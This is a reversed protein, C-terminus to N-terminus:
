GMEKITIPRGERASRQAARTFQFVERGEKGSLPAQRGELISDVFDIMGARFSVAWDWDIEERGIETFKGDSYYVLPPRNLFKGTCRNVWIFGTTGGIEFWEDEAWYDSPIVLDDSSIANWSGQRKGDSHLWSIIAPSDRVWGKENVEERIFAFVQEVPGFMFLALAFLHYGHDFVVRGGGSQADDFRWSLTSASLKWGHKLSGQASSMRISIGEGIEGSDLLEKAKALPPYYRFNEFVRFSGPAGAAAEIMGDCEQATIAMPKQVSVHKGAELADISMHRHLDHPTIIDVADVDPDDLLARYDTYSKSAGWEAARSDAIGEASDAVAIIEAAPHAIYGAAHLGSISGAGIIGVRVRDVM